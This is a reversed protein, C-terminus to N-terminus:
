LATTSCREGGMFWAAWAKASSFKHPPLLDIIMKVRYAKTEKLLEAAFHYAPGRGMEVAFGLDHRLYDFLERHAGVEHLETDDKEVFDCEHFLTELKIYEDVTIMRSTDM